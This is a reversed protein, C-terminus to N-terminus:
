AQNSFYSSSSPYSVAGPSLLFMVLFFAKFTGYLPIWSVLRDALREVM